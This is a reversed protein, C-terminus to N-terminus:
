AAVAGILPAITLQFPYNWPGIILVTGYPESYIKEWSPFNLLSPLVTKPRNWRNINKIALKLETIVIGIESIYSEFVPKKFDQYLARQIAEENHQIAALLKKLAKKRYLVDKTQQSKFFQRQHAIIQELEM